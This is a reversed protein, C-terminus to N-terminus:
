LWALSVRYTRGEVVRQWLEACREQVITRGDAGFARLAAQVAELKYYRL